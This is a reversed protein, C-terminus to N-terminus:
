NVNLQLSMLFVLTKTKIVSILQTIKSLIFISEYNVYFLSEAIQVLSRCSFKFSMFGITCSSIVGSWKAAWYPWKSIHLYMQSLELKCPLCVFFMVTKKSYLNKLVMMVESVSSISLVYMTVGVTVPTGTVYYGFGFQELICILWFVSNTMLFAFTSICAITKSLDSITYHFKM